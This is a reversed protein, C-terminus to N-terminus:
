CNGEIIKNLSNEVKDIAQKLVWETARREALKEKGLKTPATNNHADLLEVLKDKLSTALAEASGETTIVSAEAELMDKQEELEAIQDLLEKYGDLKTKKNDTITGDTEDIQSTEDVGFDLKLQEPKRQERQKKPNSTSEKPQKQPNNPQARFEQQFKAGEGASKKYKVFKNLAERNRNVFEQEEPTRDIGRYSSVDRGEREWGEVLQDFTVTSSPDYDHKRQRAPALVPTPEKDAKPQTPLTPETIVPRKRIERVFQVIAERNNNLFKQEEATRKESPIVAYTTPDLGKEDWNKVMQEFSLVDDFRYSHGESPDWQKGTKRERAVYAPVAGLEGVATAAKETPKKPSVTGSQPKLLGVASSAPSSPEVDVGILDKLLVEMNSVESDLNQMWQFHKTAAERSAPTLTPDKQEARIDTMIFSKLLYQEGSKSTSVKVKNDESGRLRSSESSLWANFTKPNETKSSYNVYDQEIGQKVKLIADHLANRKDKHVKLFREAEGLWKESEATNGEALAKKANRYYGLYGREGIAADKFVGETNLGQIANGINVASSFVRSLNAEGLISKLNGAYESFEKEIEELNRGEAMRSVVLDKAVEEVQKTSGFAKADPIIKLLTASIENGEALRGGERLVKITNVLDNVEKSLEQQALEKTQDDQAQVLRPYLDQTLRNAKVVAYQQARGVTDLGKVLEEDVGAKKFEADLETNLANWREVARQTKTAPDEVALAGEEKDGIASVKDLGSYVVDKVKGAADAVAGLGGSSSLQRAATLDAGVGAGIGAGMIGEVQTEDSILVNGLDDLAEKVTGDDDFNWKVNVVEGITQLYEQAAEKGSNAAIVAAIGLMKGAVKVKDGVPLGTVVEKVAKTLGPTKELIDLTVWKDLGSLVVQTGYMQAVKGLSPAEGYEETYEEIQNNVAGASVVLVGAEKQTLGVLKNITSMQGKVDKIQSKAVEKTINGARYAKEIGRIAKDAKAVKGAVGFYPILMSAVYGLSDGLLETNTMGIGILEAIDGLDVDKQDDKIGALINASLEKARAMAPELRAENYGFFDNVYRIKEEESGLDGLGTAEALADLPDIIGYRAIGAGFASLTNLARGGIGMNAARKERVLDEIEEKSLVRPKEEQGMSLFQQYLENVDSHQGVRSDGFLGEKSTYYETYGIGLAAKQADFEAGGEVPKRLVRNDMSGKRGHYMHELRKAIEAPLLIEMQRNEVDLGEPGPAWGYGRSGVSYGEQEARGPQYRYDASPLDGRSRGLKFMGEDNGYGYLFQTDGDYKVKEGNQMYFTSGDVDRQLQYDAIARGTIAQMDHDSLTNFLKNGGRELYGEMEYEKDDLHPMGETLLPSSVKPALANVKEQKRQALTDSKTPIASPLVPTGQMFENYMTQQETEPM